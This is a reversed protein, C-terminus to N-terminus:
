RGKPTANGDSGPAPKKMSLSIRRRAEDIALVRVEVLQGVSVIDAPNKVFRDALESVHVLGDQHVGIDVFAGFAAVNTVCGQLCMGPSLDSIKTVDDRFNATVFEQRPDRGPKLLEDRIDRLTPLGVEANVYRGLELRDIASRNGILASVALGADHAMATVVAYHEPHVASNDLLDTGRVRLFGAAQQYAKAGLRPVKLLQARRQFAGQEDRYHVIARALAPGIGSVYSLLAASATNLDVGVFNVCSEVVADLATKLARQDVDHQYQGVGISKPDVKVLEALPDQLRRAISIAGRITLDLEPFEERALDSASYVSAGAESVMVVPCSLQATELCHRAFQEMERGATGNGVAIMQIRQKKVLAIFAAEAAAVAGKGTHPYITQHELFRGTEDVAALKSGTRLGPDIGLVRLSGAPAALLLHRLNDAFVQIAARDAEKKAELRLEVEIAPAVLRQYADALVALLFERRQGSGVVLLDALAALITEEPAHLSLQLVQEKEGRRLALMRHSPITRLLEAYQYYSEFKTVQGAAEKSVCASFIGQAWTRQRVLARAASHESFREAVIDGAGKLAAQDDELEECAAAASQALDLVASWPAAADLIREALAELGRERAQAARTRRRPKFPLYLDELVAKERLAVIQAHLAPTLQGAQEITRLVTGKREELESYYDFQEQLARLEVEDLEGTQEKRYRAIFPITAGGQLLALSNAIQWPQWRGQEALWGQIKLSQQEDLVM